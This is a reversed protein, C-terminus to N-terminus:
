PYNPEIRIGVPNGGNRRQRNNGGLIPDRHVALLIPEALSSRIRQRDAPQKRAFRNTDITRTKVTVLADTNFYPVSLDERGIWGGYNPM